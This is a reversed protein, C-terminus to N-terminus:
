GGTIIPRRLYRAKLWDIVHVEGANYMLEDQTTLNPVPALRPFAEDLARFVEESIPPISVGLPHNSM